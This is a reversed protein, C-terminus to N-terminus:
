FKTKKRVITIGHAGPAYERYEIGNDTVNLGMRKYSESFKLLSGENKEIEKLLTEFKSLREKIKKEFPKLYHDSNIVELDSIRKSQSTMKNDVSLNSKKRIIHNSDKKSSFNDIESKESYDNEGIKAGEEFKLNENESNKHLSQKEKFNKSILINDINIAGDYDSEISDELASKRENLEDIASQIEEFSPEKTKVFPSSCIERKLSEEPECINNSEM